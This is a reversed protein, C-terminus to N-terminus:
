GAVIPLPLVDASVRLVDADRGALLCACQGALGGFVALAANVTPQYSNSLRYGLFCAIFMCFRYFNSINSNLNVTSTCM